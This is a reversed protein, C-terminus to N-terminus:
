GLAAIKELMSEVCSLEPHDDGAPDDPAEAVCIVKIVGDAVYMASRKCRQTHAGLLSKPGPHTIQLGCARTIEAQTDAVFEILDSGGLGMADKWASM